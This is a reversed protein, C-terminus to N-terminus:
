IDWTRRPLARGRRKSESRVATGSGALIEDAREVADPHDTRLQKMIRVHDRDKEKEDEPLQAYPVKLHDPAWANRKVWEDHVTACAEEDADCWNNEFLNVISEILSIYEKKHM